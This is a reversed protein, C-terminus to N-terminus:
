VITNRAVVDKAAGSPTGDSKLASYVNLGVGETVRFARGSGRHEMGAYDSTAHGHDFEYAELEGEYAWGFLPTGNDYVLVWRYLGNNDSLTHEFGIITSGRPISHNDGCSIYTNQWGAGNVDTRLNLRIDQNTYFIDLDEGLATVSLALVLAVMIVSAILRKM